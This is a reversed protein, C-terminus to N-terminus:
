SANLALYLECCFSTAEFKARELAVLKASRLIWSSQLTLPHTGWSAVETTGMLMKEVSYISQVLVASKFRRLRLSFAELDSWRTGSGKSKRRSTFWRAGQGVNNCEGWFIRDYHLFCNARTHSSRGHSGAASPPHDPLCNQCEMSRAFEDRENGELKRVKEGYNEMYLIWCSRLGANRWAAGRRAASWRTTAAVQAGGVTASALCFNTWANGLGRGAM